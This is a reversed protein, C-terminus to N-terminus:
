IRRPIQARNDLRFSDPSLLLPLPLVRRGVGACPSPKRARGGWCMGHSPVSTPFDKHDQPGQSQAHQLAGRRSEPHFM